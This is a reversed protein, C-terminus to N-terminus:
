LRFTNFLFAKFQCICWKIREVSKVTLAVPAVVLVAMLAARLALPAVDQAVSIATLAVDWKQPVKLRMQSELHAQSFLQVSFRYPAKLLRRSSSEVLNFNEM